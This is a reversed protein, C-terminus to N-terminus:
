PNCIMGSDGQANGHPGRSCLDYDKGERDSPSRYVYPHNWPDLPAKMEKLYPGNWGEISGPRHVLADLGDETTPYSGTDLKYMDLVSGIRAISQKVVSVKAGGLQRLAAPAVIGVLLGLIALVVLIELLTFGEDHERSIRRKYVSMKM